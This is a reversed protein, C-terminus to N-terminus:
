LKIGTRFQSEVASIAQRETWGIHAGNSDIIQYKKTDGMIDTLGITHAGSAAHSVRTWVCDTFTGGAFM